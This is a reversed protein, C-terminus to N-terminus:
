LGPHPHSPYKSIPNSTGMMEWLYSWGMCTIFIFKIKLNWHLLPLRTNYSLNYTIYFTLSPYTFSSEIIYNPSFKWAHTLQIGFFIFVTFNLWLWYLLFSYTLFCWLSTSIFLTPYYWPCFCFVCLFIIFTVPINFYIVGNIINFSAM